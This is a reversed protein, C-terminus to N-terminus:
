TSGPHPEPGAPRRLMRIERVGDEIQGAGDPAFGHKRYFAQARPNPDAVWLAAPEHPDLVANLLAPGTGTGHDSAYVYLVYLQRTWTPTTDLPPGSMAIGVLRGDREAVAIRNDRYREDSLAATWFRNRATLLAPDDLVADPMLGRYTQQWCRVNVHAMHPADDARAPRVTAPTSM